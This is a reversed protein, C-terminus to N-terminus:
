VEMSCTEFPIRRDATLLEIPFFDTTTDFRLPIFSRLRNTATSPSHFADRPRAYGGYLAPRFSVRSFVRDTFTACLLLLLLLLLTDRSRLSFRIIFEEGGEDSTIFSLPNSSRTIGIMTRVGRGKLLVREVVRPTAGSWVLSFRDFKVHPRCGTWRSTSHLLFSVKKRGREM